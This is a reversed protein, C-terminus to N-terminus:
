NCCDLQETYGYPVSDSIALTFRGLELRIVLIGGTRCMKALGTMEEVAANLREDRASRNEARVEITTNCPANM